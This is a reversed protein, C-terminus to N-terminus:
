YLNWLRIGGTLYLILDM